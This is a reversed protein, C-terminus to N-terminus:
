LLIFRMYGLFDTSNNEDYNISIRFSFTKNKLKKKM